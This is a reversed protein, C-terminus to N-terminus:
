KSRRIKGAFSGTQLSNQSLSTSQSQQARHRANEDVVSVEGNAKGTITRAASSLHDPSHHGYVRDVM